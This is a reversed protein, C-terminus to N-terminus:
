RCGQQRHHLRRHWGASLFAVFVMNEALSVAELRGLGADPDLREVTWREVTTRGEARKKGM